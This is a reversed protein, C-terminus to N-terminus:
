QVSQQWDDIGVQYYGKKLYGKRLLNRDSKRYMPSYIRGPKLKMKLQLDKLPFESNGEMEVKAILPYEKVHCVLHVGRSTRDGTFSIDSFFGSKYLRRVDRSLQRRSLTEGVRSDMKALVAEKEVNHNGEVNISLILPAHTGTEPQAGAAIANQSACITFLVAVSLLKVANLM